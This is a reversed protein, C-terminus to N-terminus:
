KLVATTYQDADSKAVRMRIDPDQEMAIRALYPAFHNPLEISFNIRMGLDRCARLAPRAPATAGARRAPAKDGAVAGPPGGGWARADAMRQEGKPDLGPLAMQNSPETM